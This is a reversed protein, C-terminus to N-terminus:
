SLFEKYDLIDLKLNEHLRCLKGETDVFYHVHTGEKIDKTTVAGQQNIGVNHVPIQNYTSAVHPTSILKLAIIGDQGYVIVHDGLPVVVEVTNAWPMPMYGALNQRGQSMDVNDLFALNNIDSWAVWNTHTDGITPYDVPGGLILRGRHKCISKSLPLITGDDTAFVGTTPNRIINVFGNTFIIYDGFDAISWNRGVTLTTLLQTLTALSANYEYLTDETLVFLGRYTSFVQANENLAFERVLKDAAVLGAETVRINSAATLYMGNRPSEELPRLGKAFMEQVPFNFTKM